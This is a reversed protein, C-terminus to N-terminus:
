PWQVTKWQELPRYLDFFWSKQTNQCFHKKKQAFFAVKPPGFLTLFWFFLKECFKLTTNRNHKRTNKVHKELGLYPVFKRSLCHNLTTTDPMMASACSTIEFYKASLLLKLKIETAWRIHYLCEPIIIHNIKTKFHYKVLHDVVIWFLICTCRITFFCGELIFGAILLHNM